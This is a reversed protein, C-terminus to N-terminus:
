IWKAYQAMAPDAFFLNGAADFLVSTPEYLQASTAPGGDGSYTSTLIGTVVKGAVTTIIGTSGNVERIVNNGSEAIYLNGKADFALGAPAYLLAGTAPGGDGGYGSGATGVITTIIGTADTVKRVSTNASIYVNRSAHITIGGIPGLVASTAARRATGQRDRGGM